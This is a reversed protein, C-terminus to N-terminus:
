RRRTVGHILPNRDGGPLRILKLPQDKLLALLFVSHVRHLCEEIHRDYYQLLHSHYFLCSHNGAGFTLICGSPSFVRDRNACLQLSGAVKEKKAEEKQNRWCSTSRKANGGCASSYRSGDTCGAANVVIGGFRTRTCSAKSKADKAHSFPEIGRISQPLGLSLDQIQCVAPLLIQLDRRNSSDSTSYHLM